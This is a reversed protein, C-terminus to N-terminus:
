SETEEKFNDIGSFASLIYKDDVDHHSVSTIYLRVICSVFLCVTFASNVISTDRLAKWTTCPYLIGQWYRLCLLCLNSGHAPFIVQLLFRCGVETNKGPFDWPYLLKTPQLGHPQLSIEPFRAFFVPHDFYVADESIKQCLKLFDLKNVLFSNTLGLYENPNEDGRLNGPLNDPNSPSTFTAQDHRVRQLRMCQPRGSEETWVIKWALISFHTAM